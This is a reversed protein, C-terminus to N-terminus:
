GPELRPLRVFWRRFWWGFGWRQLSMVEAGLAGMLVVGDALRKSRGHPVWEGQPRPPHRVV